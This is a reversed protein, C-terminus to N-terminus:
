PVYPRLKEALKDGDEPYYRRARAIIGTLVLHRQPGEPLWQEKGDPNALLHIICEIFDELYYDTHRGRHKVTLSRPFRHRDMGFLDELSGREGAKRVPGKRFLVDLCPGEPPTRDQPALTFSPYTGFQKVILGRRYKRRRQEYKHKAEKRRRSRETETKPRPRRRKKRRPGEKDTPLEEESPPLKDPPKLLAQVLEKLSNPQPHAAPSGVLTQFEKFRIGDLFTAIDDPHREILSLLAGGKRDTISYKQILYTALNNALNQNQASKGVHKDLFESIDNGLTLLDVEPRLKKRLKLKLRSPSRRKVIANKV